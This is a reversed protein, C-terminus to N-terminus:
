PVSGARGGARAHDALLAALVAPDMPKLFHHDFGAVRVAPATNQFGTLAVLLPRRSASAVRSAALTRASAYLAQDASPRGGAL